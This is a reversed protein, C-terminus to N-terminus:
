RVPKRQRPATAKKAKPKAVPPQSASASLMDGPYEQNYKECLVRLQSNYKETLTKHKEAYHSDHAAKENACLEDLTQKGKHYSVTPFKEFLGKFEGYYEDPLAVGPAGKKYKQDLLKKESVYTKNKNDKDCKELLAKLNKNYKEFLGKLERGYAEQRKREEGAFTENLAKVEAEYEQKKLYQDKPDETETEDIENEQQKALAKERRKSLEDHLKKAYKERERQNKDFLAKIQKHYDEKRPRGEREYRLELIYKENNFKEDCYKNNLDILDNNYEDGILGGPMAKYASTIANKENQQREQINKICRNNVEKFYDADINRGSSQYEEDVTEKLTHFITPDYSKTMRTLERQFDDDTYKQSDSNYTSFDDSDDDDDDDGDDYEGSPNENKSIKDLLKQQYMQKDYECRNYLAKLLDHFSEDQPKKENYYKLEMVLKEYNMHEDNYKEFLRMLQNYYHSDRPLGDPKKYKNKIAKKEKKYKENILESGIRCLEQYYSEDYGNEGVQYLEDVIKRVKEFQTKNCQERLQQLKKYYQENKYDDEDMTSILCVPPTPLEYPDIDGSEKRRKYEANLMNEYNEKEDNYKETLSTIQEHYEADRPLNERQYRLELAKKENDLREKNYKDFINMLANCYQEDFPRHRARYQEYVYWSEHNLKEYTFVDCVRLIENYFHKDFVRGEEEYKSEVIHRVEDFNGDSSEFSERLTDYYSEPKYTNENFDSSQVESNDGERFSHFDNNVKRDNLEDYLKNEYAQEESTCKEYLTKIISQFYDDEPRGENERKLDLLMRRDHMQDDAYKHYLLLLKQYYEDDYPLGDRQYKENLLEKEKKYANGNFETCIRDVEAYYHIDLPKGQYKEDVLNKVNNFDDAHGNHFIDLLKTYYETSDTGNKFIKHGPNVDDDVVEGLMKKQMYEDHLKKYYDQKESSYQEFISKLEAHYADDRPKRESNYKEDLVRKHTNFQECNYKDFLSLLESYYSSNLVKTGKGYKKNLRAKEEQHRKNIAKDVGRTLERYYQLDYYTKGQDKYKRDMDKKVNKYRQEDFKTTLQKLTKYYNENAQDEETIDDDLFDIPGKYEATYFDNTKKRGRLEASLEQWHKNNDAILKDYLKKVGDRYKEDHPLGNNKYQLDLIVKGLNFKDESNKEFAKMLEQYYQDNRPRNERHYRLHIKEVEKNYKDNSKGYATRELENYYHKNFPRAEVKYKDDIRNKIKDFERRDYKGFLLLLKDYYEIENYYEPNLDDQNYNYHRGRHKNYHEELKKAYKEKKEDYKEGIIQLQSHFNEDRSKGENQYRLHLVWMESLCQRHNFWNFIDMLEGYYFENVQPQGLEKYKDNINKKEEKYRETSCDDALRKLESYYSDDYSKGEDNYKEDVIRKVEDFENNQYREFLIKAENYYAAVDFGSHSFEEDNKYDASEYVDDYYERVSFKTDMEDRLRREYKNGEKEYKETLADLEKQYNHDRPLGRRQYKLGLICKENNLNEQKYLQYAFLADRYDTGDKQLGSNQYRERIRCKENHYTELNLCKLIFDLENYYHDDYPRGMTTYKDDLFKKVNQFEDHKSGDKLAMINLNYQESADDYNKQKTLLSMLKSQYHLNRIEDEDQEELLQNKRGAIDEQLRKEYKKQKQDYKKYIDTLERHYYENRSLGENQYKVNLLMHEYTRQLYHFIEGIYKLESFYHKNDRPLEATTYKGEIFAKEKDFREKLFLYTLANLECYYTDDYPRGQHHYKEDLFKKADDFESHRYREYLIKMENYYNPLDFSPDNLENDDYYIGKYEEGHYEWPDLKSTQLETQLHKKYTKRESNYRSNIDMLRTFYDKDQPRGENQYRLELIRKEANLKDNSFRGYLYMIENFCKKDRTLGSAGYKEKIIQREHKYKENKFLKYLLDIENYYHNDFPRGTAQYKDTVMKIINNLEEQYCKELMTKIHVRYPENQYNGDKPKGQSLKLRPSYPKNLVESDAKVKKGGVEEQLRKTYEKQKKDYKSYITQKEKEFSRDTIPRGENQFRLRLLWVENDYQSNTYVEHLYKLEDVYHKDVPLNFFIYRECAFQKEQEYHKTLLIDCLRNIETYYSPDVSKGQKRYKDDVIRKIDEFETHKYPEYLRKMDDFYAEKDFTRNSFEDDDHYYLGDFLESKDNKKKPLPKKLENDLKKEYVRRKNDYNQKKIMLEQFYEPGRPLYENLYRLELVRQETMMQDENYKRFLYTLENYCRGDNHDGSRYKELISNREELFKDRILLKLFFDIENYYHSDYSRKQADYKDDIFKKVNYFDQHKSREYLDKLEAYYPEQKYASLKEDADKFIDGNITVSPCDRASPTLSGFPLGTTLLKGLMGNAKARGRGKMEEESKKRSQMLEHLTKAYDKQKKDYKEYISEMECEYASDRQKGETTYRLNLLWMDNDYRSNTYCEFVFKLEDYYHNDLPLGVSVYREDVIKKDNRHRRGAFLDCLANIEDYFNSDFSKGASQYKKEVLKKAEDFETHKFKEYKEKKETYYDAIDFDQKMFDSDIQYHVEKYLEDVHNKKKLEELLKKDYKRYEDEYKETIAKTKTQFEEDHAKKNDLYKLELVKKEFNMQDDNLKKFIFMIENHCRASSLQGSSQYKAKISQKDENFKDRTFLKLLVDLENYFHDNRERGETKYTDDLMDRLNYFLEDLSREYLIKLTGYYPESKYKGLYSEEREKSEAKGKKEKGSKESAHRQPKEHKAKERQKRGGYVRTPLHFATPGHPGFWSAEQLDSYQGDTSQLFLSEEDGDQSFHEAVEEEEEEQIPPLIDGDEPYIGPGVEIEEEEEEEEEEKIGRAGAKGKAKKGQQARPGARVATARPNQRHQRAAALLRKTRAEATKRYNYCADYEEWDPHAPSWVLLSCLLVVSFFVSVNRKEAM